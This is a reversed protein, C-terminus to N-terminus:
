LGASVFAARERPNMEFVSKDPRYEMGIPEVRFNNYIYEDEDDREKNEIDHKFRALDELITSRKSRNPDFDDRIAALREKKKKDFKKKLKKKNKKGNSSIKSSNDLSKKLKGMLDDLDDINRTDSFNNYLGRDVMNMKSKTFGDKKVLKMHDKFNKVYLWVTVAAGGALAGIKAVTNVKLGCIYTVFTKAATVIVNKAIKFFGTITM